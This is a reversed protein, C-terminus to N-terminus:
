KLMILRHIVIVAMLIIRARDRVHLFQVNSSKYGKLEITKFFPLNYILVFCSQINKIFETIRSVLEIGCM